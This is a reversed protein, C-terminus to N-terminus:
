CNFLHLYDPLMGNSTLRRPRDDFVMDPQGCMIASVDIDISEEDSFYSSSSRIEYERISFKTLLLADTEADDIEAM